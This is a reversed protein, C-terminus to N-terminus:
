RRRLLVAVGAALWIAGVTLGFGLPYNLPQVSPEGPRKGWGILPILAFLAVIATLATAWQVTGLHRAPVVRRLGAGVLLV